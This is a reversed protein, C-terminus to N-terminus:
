QPNKQMLILDFIYQMLISSIKIVSHKTVKKSKTGSALAWGLSPGSTPTTVFVGHKLSGERIGPPHKSANRWERRREGWGSSDISHKVM